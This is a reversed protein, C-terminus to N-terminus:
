GCQALHPNSLYEPFARPVYGTGLVELLEKLGKEGVHASLRERGLIIVKRVETVM